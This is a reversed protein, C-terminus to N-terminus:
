RILPLLFGRRRELGVLGAGVRVEAGVRVGVIVFDGLAAGVVLVGVIVFYGEAAGVVLVCEVRGVVLFGLALGVKVTVDDEGAEDDLSGVTKTEGVLEGLERKGVFRGDEKDVVVGDDFLGDERGELM